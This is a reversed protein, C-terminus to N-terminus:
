SERVLLVPDFVIAAAVIRGLPKTALRLPQGYAEPVVGQM